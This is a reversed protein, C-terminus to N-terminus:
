GCLRPESPGPGTPASLAWLSAREDVHEVVQDTHDTDERMGVQLDLDLPDRDLFYADVSARRQGSSYPLRDSGPRSETFRSRQGLGAARHVSKGAPHSPRFGKM